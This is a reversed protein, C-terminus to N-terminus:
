EDYQLQRLIFEGQGSHAMLKIERGSGHITIHCALDCSSLLGRAYEPWEILLIAQSIFYDQIGISEFELSTQLRYLDFHFVAGTSFEYPEVLTYTPSKVRGRYGLGNLFGRVLTTKGAGLQGYLFLIFPPFNEQMAHMRQSVQALQRGFALMNAEDCISKTIKEM